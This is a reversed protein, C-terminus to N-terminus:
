RPWITSLTSVSIPNSRAVLMAEDAGALHGREGGRPAVHLPQERPSSSSSERDAKFNGYRHLLAPDVKPLAKELAQRLEEKAEELMLGHAALSIWEEGAPISRVGPVTVTYTGNEHRQIFIRVKQLM